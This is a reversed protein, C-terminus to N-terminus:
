QMGELLACAAEALAAPNYGGELVAFLRGAARAAAFEALMRGAAEYDETCLTGGWDAVHRDFGASLAVLDCPGQTALFERLEELFEGRSQASVHYYAVDAVGGFIAATGDGFHLDIDVILAKGIEGRHRLREVAVAVNNFWCFGWSSNPGAHHGPPRVLAFAREGALALEAAAVAGGAALLAMDYTPGRRKVAEIHAVTHVRAVDGEAAPRPEVFPYRRRLEEVARDLRGAAAAPDRAYVERFREHFVVKM